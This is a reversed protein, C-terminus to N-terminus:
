WKGLPCSQGTLRAKAKVNCGCVECYSGILKVKLEPCGRCIQMRQDFVKLKSM